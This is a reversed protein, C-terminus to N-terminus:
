TSETTRTTHKLQENHELFDLRRLNQVLPRGMTIIHGKEEVKELVYIIGSEGCCITHYGNGKTHAKHTWFVFGPCTLKNMCMSLSEDSCSIWSSIFVNQMHIKRAVIMHLVEYFKDKYSYSPSPLCHVQSWLVDKLFIALCLSTSM